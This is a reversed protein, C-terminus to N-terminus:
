EYKIKRSILNKRKNTKEEKDIKSEEVYTITDKTDDIDDTDTPYVITDEIDDGQDESFDNDDQDYITDDYM